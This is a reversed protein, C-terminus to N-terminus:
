FFLSSGLKGFFFKIFFTNHLRLVIRKNAHKCTDNNLVSLDTYLVAADITASCINYNVHRGCVNLLLQMTRM